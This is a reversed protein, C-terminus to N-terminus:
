CRGNAKEFAIPLKQHHFVQLEKDAIVIRVPLKAYVPLLQHQLGDITLLDKASAKRYEERVSCCSREKLPQLYQREEEFRRIPAPEQDDPLEMARLDSVAKMRWQLHANLAEISAFSRGPSRMTNQYSRGRTRSEREVPLLVSLLRGCMWTLTPLVRSIPWEAFM